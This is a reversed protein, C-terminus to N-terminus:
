PDNKMIRFLYLSLFLSLSRGAEHKTLEKATSPLGAPQNQGLPPAAEPREPPPVGGRKEPSSSPYKHFVNSDRGGGRDGKEMEM